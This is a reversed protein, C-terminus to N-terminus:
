RRAREVLSNVNAVVADREYAGGVVANQVDIVILATKPRNELTTM